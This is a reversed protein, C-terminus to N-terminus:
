QSYEDLTYGGEKAKRKKEQLRNWANESIIAGYGNRFILPKVVAEVPENQVSEVLKRLKEITPNQGGRSNGSSCREPEDIGVAKPYSGVSGDDTRKASERVEGGECSEPACSPEALAPVPLNRRANRRRLNYLARNKERWKKQRQANTLAM